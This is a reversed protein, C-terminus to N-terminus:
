HTSLYDIACLLLSIDDHAHGLMINCRYCLLGRVMGKKHCHDICLRKHYVHCILCCGKQADYMDHYDQESMNYLRRRQYNKQYKYNNNIGYEKTYSKMKEKNIQYYKKQYLKLKEKNKQYYEKQYENM